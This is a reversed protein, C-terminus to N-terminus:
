PGRYRGEREIEVWLEDYLADLTAVDPIQDLPWSHVSYRPRVRTPRSLWEWADNQILFDRALWGIGFRWHTPDPQERKAREAQRYARRAAECEAATPSSTALTTASPKPPAVLPRSV